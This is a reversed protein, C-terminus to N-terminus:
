CYQALLVLTGPDLSPPPLTQKNHQKAQWIRSLCLADRADAWCKERARLWKVLAPPTDNNIPGNDLLSPQHGLLLKFPYMGTSVNISSNIAFEVSPLMDAWKGQRKSTFTCLIQGVTKNTQESRGDAQPHFASSCHFSTSIQSM